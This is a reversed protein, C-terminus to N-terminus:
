CLAVVGLWCWQQSHCLSSTCSDGDQTTTFHSHVRRDRWRFTDELRSSLSTEDKVHGENYRWVENLHKSAIIYVQLHIKKLSSKSFIPLVMKWLLPQSSFSLLFSLYCVLPKFLFPTFITKTTFYGEFYSEELLALTEVTSVARIGSRDYGIKLGLSLVWLIHTWSDLKCV